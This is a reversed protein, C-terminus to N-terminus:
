IHILSLKQTKKNRLTVRKKKDNFRLQDFEVGNKDIFVEEAEILNRTTKKKDSLKEELMYRATTEANMANEYQKSRIADIGKHGYKLAYKQATLGGIVGAAHVYGEINIDEGSLIPALTGFEATEVAKVALTQTAPKLGKLAARVIPGTGATM